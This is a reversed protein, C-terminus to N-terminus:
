VHGTQHFDGIYSGYGTADLLTELNSTDNIGHANSISHPSLKLLPTASVEDDFVSQIPTELNLASHAPRESNLALLNPNLPHIVAPPAKSLNPEAYKYIDTSLCHINTYTCTYMM